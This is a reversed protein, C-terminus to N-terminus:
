NTLETSICEGDLAFPVDVLLSNFIKCKNTTPINLIEYKSYNQSVNLHEFIPYLHMEAKMDITPPTGTTVNKFIELTVQYGLYWNM